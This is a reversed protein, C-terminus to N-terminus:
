GPLFVVAPSGSGSRHLLLRRGEVDCYRGLPPAAETKTDPDGGSPQRQMASKRGAPTRQGPPRLAAMPSGSGATGDAKGIKSVTGSIPDHRPPCAQGAGAGPASVCR